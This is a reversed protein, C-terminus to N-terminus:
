HIMRNGYVHTIYCKKCSKSPGIPELPRIEHGVSIRLKCIYQLVRNVRHRIVKSEICFTNRILRGNIRARFSGICKQELIRM